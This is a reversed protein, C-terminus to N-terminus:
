LNETKEVIYVPRDKLETFLIAIYEGIIGILLFMMAFMFCLLVVITAYGSPAGQRTCLTYVMVLVGLAASFVGAYIGLKLPMNSFCLITNISFIFLKKISYKSEGAVRARAEYEINTKKFGVNQVYGRLFRVKERYNDKLVQAVHSSIAFFDSANPEFHVDSIHNILWYFGSSTINKILGASENKTRVMNIVEYGADFKEIIQPICEPPHQLDADMCIIGDGTSHDIGAIMAAEHGFNRSFSILKVDHDEKALEELISLSNDASGDNVFILEHEWGSNKIQELIKNTEKYFERLAKEENYVSVVVSLKCSIKSNENIDRNNKSNNELINNM